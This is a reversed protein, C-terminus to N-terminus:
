RLEPKKLVTLISVGFPFSVLRLFYHEFNFVWYLILNLFKNNIDFDSERGKIKFWRSILRVAAIPAFLFTNFYTKHDVSLGSSEEFVKILRPLSYRRYHHAVEDQVGWLFKFAPVMVVAIGGPALVRQIERVAWSEDELHEIVDLLLVTNFYNDPFNLKHADIVDINKIGQRRGFQIAESSIDLGFSQYGQEALRATLYGSGCGFDLIKTEEPKRGYKKLIDFVILRRVKMLWHSKEVEFYNKYFSRDMGSTNLDWLNWNFKGIYEKLCERWDRTINVGMERLKLNSLKESSPRPAFYTEKFYSSDVKAIKVKNEQNLTKILTRAVDYRTGGGECAGHYLGYLRKDLLHGIVKALDYTYCPTGWKDDVVAIERAGTRIQKIVKNIFKKDKRPGGGMMWGARVVISKNVSRAILEGAYKSKGYVSQPNPMDHEYYEDKSGDFIGATSIYVFPLDHKRAYFALNEVGQTNVAYAHEPNLECYEMDTLAALHLVYDPKVKQLYRDVEKKSAVDLRELWPENLDIDTAYVNCRNKFQNYVAEGLMGGCGTILMKAQKQIM